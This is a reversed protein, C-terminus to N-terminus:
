FCNQKCFKNGSITINIYENAKDNYYFKDNDYIPFNFEINPKKIERIM